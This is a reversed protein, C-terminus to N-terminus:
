ISNRREYLKNVLISKVKDPSREWKIVHGFAVVITGKSRPDNVFNLLQQELLQTESSSNGGTLKDCSGGTYFLNTGLPQAPQVHFPYDVLSLLSQQYFRELDMPFSNRNSFIPKLIEQDVKKHVFVM